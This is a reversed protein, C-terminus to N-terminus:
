DTPLPRNSGFVLWALVALGVALLGVGVRFSTPAYAFEVEHEGPALAVARFAHNARVIPVRAGDVHATWGPFDTDALVLVAASSVDTAVVVREPRDTTIRVSEEGQAPAVEPWSPGPELVVAHAPDFDPATVRGLADAEDTARVVTHVLRARPAARFLIRDGDPLRGVEAWGAPQLIPAFAAPAAVMGVALAAAVNPAAAMREWMRREFLGTVLGDLGVHALLDVVRRPPLAPEHGTPSPLDDRLPVGARLEPGAVVRPAGPMRARVEALATVRPALAALDPPLRTGRTPVGAVVGVVHVAALFVVVLWAGRRALMPLAAVGCAFAALAETGRGVAAAAAAVVLSSSSALAPATGTRMVELGVAALYAAFVPWLHHWGYASRAGSFPYVDYLYSLPRNLAFLALLFAGLWARRRWGGAAIGLALCVVGAAGMRGLLVTVLYRADFIQFLAVFSPTRGPQGRVSEATTEALTLIQPAALLVGCGLGLAAAALRRARPPPGLVVVLPVVLAMDMAFEPYGALWQLASAGALLAVARPRWRADLRSGAFLMVPVWTLAFLFSPHDRGADAAGDFLSAVVLASALTAGALGVGSRALFWITLAVLAFLHVEYLVQLGAWPSAIALSTVVVPPYLVAGQATGLLPLGCYEDPNWLPARGAAIADAAARYKALFTAYLDAGGIRAGFGGRAAVLGGLSAALVAALALERWRARMDVGPARGHDIARPCHQRLDFPARLRSVRRPGHWRM